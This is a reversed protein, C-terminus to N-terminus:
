ETAGKRLMKERCLAFQKDLRLYEEALRSREELRGQEYLRNMREIMRYLKQMAIALEKRDDMAADKVYQRCSVVLM